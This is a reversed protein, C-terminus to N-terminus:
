LFLPWDHPTKRFPVGLIVDGGYNDSKAQFQGPFSLYFYRPASRSAHSVTGVCTYGDVHHAASLPSIHYEYGAIVIIITLETCKFHWLGTDKEYTAGELHKYMQETVSYPVQIWSYTSDIYAAIKGGPTGSVTSKLTASGGGWSIGDIVIYYHQDNYWGDHNLWPYKEVHTLDPFNYKKLDEKTVGFIQTVDAIEGITLVGGFSKDTGKDDEAPSLLLTWYLGTGQEALVRAIFSDASWDGYEKYITSTNPWIGFGAYAYDGDAHILLPADSHEYYATFSERKARL